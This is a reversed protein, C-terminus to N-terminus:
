ARGARSRACGPWGRAVWVVGRTYGEQASEPAGGALEAGRHRERAPRKEAMQDPRPAWRLAANPVLLVNPREGAMFKVNATLYPLLKGNSNDTIVEVTYTVVNQTMTANLRM